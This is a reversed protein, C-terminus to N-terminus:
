SYKTHIKLKHDEPWNEASATGANRRAHPGRRLAPSLQRIQVLLDWM